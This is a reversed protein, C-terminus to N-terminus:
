LSQLESTHEESRILEVKHRLGRERFFSDALFLFELPAVPCKIPMEAISVVLRGGPWTRLCKGLAAAGDLTYFDFINKRWGGDRLGPTEKPDIDCGTAIVLQDYAIFGPSGSVKVQGEQPDISEIEAFVVKARSPLFRRKPRVVDVSTYQGFPIFLYGPQYFHRQEHDVVVIQWDRSDLRRAMKNAVITGATGAGLILLTKM